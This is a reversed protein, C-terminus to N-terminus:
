TGTKRARHARDLPLRTCVGLYADRARTLPASLGSLSAIQRRLRPHICAVGLVFFAGPLILLGVIAASKLM